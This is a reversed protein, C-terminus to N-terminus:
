PPTRNRKSLAFAGGRRSTEESLAGPGTGRVDAGYFGHETKNRYNRMFGGGDEAGEVFAPGHVLGGGGVEM